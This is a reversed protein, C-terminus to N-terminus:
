SATALFRLSPASSRIRGSAQRSELEALGEACEGAYPCWGCLPGPNAEYEASATSTAIKEWTSHLGDVSAQLLEDTVETDIICQGLYLLRAAQPREGTQAEIAAAYLLVQDLRADAFRRSPARGSKYDVVVLGSSPDRDLRDVIGRFPVDVITTDIKQETAEVAVEAPNELRWLGEIATWSLWRFRRQETEDLGLAVFDPDAETEPWVERSIERARDTTRVAPSEQLLLELVRHAFTGALAAEGAPDALRDVYRFKWRKACSRFTSASSPSLYPPPGDKIGNLSDDIVTDAADHPQEGGVEGAVAYLTESLDLDDDFAM